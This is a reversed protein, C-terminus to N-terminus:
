WFFAQRSSVMDTTFTFDLFSGHSALSSSRFDDHNIDRGGGYIGTLNCKGCQRARYMEEFVLRMSQEWGGYNSEKGGDKIPNKASLNENRTLPEIANQLTDETAHRISEFSGRQTVM